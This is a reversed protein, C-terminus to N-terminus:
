PQLPPGLIEEVTLTVDPCEPVVLRDSRPHVTILGYGETGPRTGAIVAGGALDVVWTEAIGAQGYTPLKLRRDRALSTDAVEIVLFIDAPGPKGSRYYDARRRLVAVDPYPRSRPLAIPNQIAVLARGALRSTLLDNLRIVCAAHEDGIPTMAVLVGELLEVREEDGLIGVEVLRDFEEVTFRRLDEISVVASALSIAVAWGERRTNRSSAERVLKYRPRLVGPFDRSPYVPPPFATLVERRPQRARHLARRALHEDQQRCRPLVDRRRREQPQPRRLLPGATTSPWTQGSGLGRLPGSQITYTTWLSGSNRPVNALTNGVPFDNSETIVADTLAYSAVINWGPLIQGSVDLEIGRSRHTGADISFGPNVPDATLVNSRTIQYFALTAFVRGVLLSAKAGIEFQQGTERPFPTGAFDTGFQPM